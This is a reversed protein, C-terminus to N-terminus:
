KGLQMKIFREVEYVTSAEFIVSNNQDLILYLPISGVNIAKGILYQPDIFQKWTPADKKIANKWKELDEDITISILPIKESVFFKNLDPLQNKNAYRCPGCWSAWFDLVKYRGEIKSISTPEEKDNKLTYTSLNMGMRNREISNGRKKLDKVLLLDESGINVAYRKILDGSLKGFSAENLFCLGALRISTNKATDLIKIIENRLIETRSVIEPFYNKILAEKKTPYTKISDEFLRIVRFFISKKIDRFVLMKKNILNDGEIKQTYYLSDANAQIEIPNHHGSSLIIYNDNTGSTLSMFQGGKPPLRLLYLLVQPNAPLTYHFTGDNNLQISDLLKAANIDIRNVQAVYLKSEWKASPIIRGLIKTQSFGIVGSFFIFFLFLFADRFFGTKNTLGQFIMRQFRSGTRGKLLDLILLIKAIGM